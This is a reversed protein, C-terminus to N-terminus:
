PPYYGDLEEQHKLWTELMLDGITYNKAKINIIGKNKLIDLYKALTGRSMDTNEM